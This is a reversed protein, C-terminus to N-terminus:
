RRDIQHVPRITKVESLKLRFFLVRLFKGIKVQSSDLSQRQRDLGLILSGAIVQLPHPNVGHFQRPIQTQAFVFSLRQLRSRHQVIDALQRNRFMNNRFGALKRRFFELLHLDMGNNPRLNQLLYM